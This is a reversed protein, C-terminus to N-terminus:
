APLIFGFLFNIVGGLAMILIPSWKTRRLLVLCLVFIGAMVWNTGGLTVDGSWLANMMILVRGVYVNSRFAQYFLSIVAIVLFPPLITALIAVLVGRLGALKYGIVIAGNVSISGPSSQAIAILDLMEPEDIWHLEDVFAKEDAFRDYVRRRVYVRQSLAHIFVIAGFCVKKAYGCRWTRHGTYHLKVYLYITRHPLFFLFDATNTSVSSFKCM